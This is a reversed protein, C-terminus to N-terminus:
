IVLFYIHLTLMLMFTVNTNIYTHSCRCMHIYSIHIVWESYFIYFISINYQLIHSYIAHCARWVWVCVCLRIICVFGGRALWHYFRTAISKKHPSVSWCFSLLRGPFCFLFRENFLFYFIVLSSHYMWVFTCVCTYLYIYMHLHRNKLIKISFVELFKVLCIVFIIGYTRQTLCM